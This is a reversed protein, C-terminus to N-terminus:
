QNEEKEKFAISFFVLPTEEVDITDNYDIDDNDNRIKYINNM